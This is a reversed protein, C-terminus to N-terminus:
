NTPTNAPCGQSQLTGSSSAEKRLCDLLNWARFLRDQHKLFMLFLPQKQTSPHNYGQKFGVFIMIFPHYHFIINIDNQVCKNFILLFYIVQLIEVNM